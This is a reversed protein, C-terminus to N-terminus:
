LRKIEHKPLNHVFPVVRAGSAELFKVYSAAIYSEGPGSPDSPQSLVGIIVRNNKPKEADGASNQNPSSAAQGAAHESNDSSGGAVSLPLRLAAASCICTILLVIRTSSLTSSGLRLVMTCDSGLESGTVVHQRCINNRPLKRVHLQSLLLSAQSMAPLHRVNESVDHQECTNAGAHMAGAEDMHRRAEGM